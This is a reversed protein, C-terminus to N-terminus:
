LLINVEETGPQWYLVIKGPALYFDDARLNKYRPLDKRPIFDGLGMPLGTGLDWTDGVREQVSLGDACEVIDTYLSLRTDSRLTVTHRATLTYPEFDAPKGSQSAQIASPLLHKVAHRTLVREFTQYYVRMRKQKKDPKPLSLSVKVMIRGNKRLAKEIVRV